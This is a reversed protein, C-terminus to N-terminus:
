RSTVGGYRADRRGDVTVGILAALDGTASFSDDGGNMNVVLNETTGIDLSFPGPETRKIRGNLTVLTVAWLKSHRLGAPFPM